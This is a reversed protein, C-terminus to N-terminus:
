LIAQSLHSLSQVAYPATLLVIFGRLLRRSDLKIETVYIKWNESLKYDFSLSRLLVSISMSVLFNFFFCLVVYSPLKLFDNSPLILLFNNYILSLM